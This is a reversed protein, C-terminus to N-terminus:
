PTSGRRPAACSAPKENGLKNGKRGTERPADGSADPASPLNNAAKRSHKTQLTNEPLSSRKTHFVNYERRCQSWM